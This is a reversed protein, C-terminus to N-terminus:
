SSETSRILWFYVGDGLWDYANKSVLFGGSLVQDAIQQSTGHHGVVIEGPMNAM